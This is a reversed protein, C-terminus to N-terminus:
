VGAPAGFDGPSVPRLQRVHEPRLVRVAGEGLDLEVGDFGLDRVRGAHIGGDASEARVHRGLLDTLGMWESELRSVDGRLLRDYSGDLTRLVGDAVARSDFRVGSVIALSTADPLEATAFDEASQHLNLGLGCVVTRGQEILIGCVKKGGVLLDNPWKITVRQGTFERVADGVAVAAWATLIVARRLEPPPDLVVSLLLSSGPPSSWTRGYQGRGATQFDAVVATGPPLTRAVTNTSELADFALVPRGVHRTAAHWTERPAPTM